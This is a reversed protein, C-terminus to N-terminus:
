KKYLIIYAIIDNDEIKQKTKYMVDLHKNPYFAAMNSDYELLVGVTLPSYIDPKGLISEVDQKKLDLSLDFPLKGKYQSSSDTYKAHFLITKLEGQVFSLSIGTSKWIIHVLSDTNKNNGSIIQSLSYITDKDDGLSGLFKSLSADKIGKGLLSYYDINEGNVPYICLTFMIFLCNLILKIRKPYM